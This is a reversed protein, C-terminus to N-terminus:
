LLLAISSKGQGSKGTVIIKLENKGMVKKRYYIFRKAIIQIDYHYESIFWTFTIAIKYRSTTINFDRGIFFM